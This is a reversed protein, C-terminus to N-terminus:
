YVVTVGRAELAPIQISIANASLPNGTLDLFAGSGFYLNDVLPTLDSIQCYRVELHMLSRHSAFMSLDTLGIQNARVTILLEDNTLVSLDNTAIGSIDLEKLLPCNFLTSLDTIPNNALNMVEYGGQLASIDQVQNGSIDLYRGGTSHLLSIDVLNNNNLVLTDLSLGYWELYKFVDLDSVSGNSLKFTSLNSLWSLPWLDSISYNNSFDLWTVNTFHQLGALNAINRDHADMAVVGAVDSEYLQTEYPVSILDHTFHDFNTDIFYIVTPDIDTTISVGRRQMLPLYQATSWQDLPCGTVDLIRGNGFYDNNYLPLLDSVYTGAMNVEDLNQLSGLASISQVPNNSFTLYALSGMSAVPQISSINNDSMNLYTLQVLSEIPGIDSINNHDLNLGQLQTLASIPNLSSIVNDSLTLSALNTFFNLGTLDEINRSTASFSTLWQVDVDYIPGEMIGLEERVAAELNADNFFIQNKEESTQFYWVPGQTSHGYDDYAVVRWMYPTYAALSYLTYSPSSLYSAILQLDDSSGTNSVYLDYYVKDGDQDPDDCSWTLTVQDYYVDWQTDPPNPNYPTVPYNRHTAGTWFSWVPGMTSHEFGDRTEVQWFYQTNPDLDFYEVQTDHRDWSFPQLNYQDTGVYTYYLLWDGEDPDGGEWELYGADPDIDTEGDYPSPNSPEYPPQNEVTETWFEWTPGEIDMLVTRDGEQGKRSGNAKDEKTVKDTKSRIPVERSVDRKEGKISKSQAPPGLTAQITKSGGGAYRAIIHWRYISGSHMTGPDYHADQIGEAVMLTDYNLGFYVDYEVMTGAPSECDWYLDADVSVNTAEDAPNPNSPRGPGETTFSWLPGESRDESGGEYAIIKWYYTTQPELWGPFYTRENHLSGVNQPYQTTGFYVDFMVEDGEPDDCTWQLNPTISVNQSGDAPDPNSPAPPPQNPQNVQFSWVPGMAEQEKSDHAVIRWYWTGASVNGVNYSRSSIRSAIQGPSPENGFAVDYTLPDGDPDSCQWYLTVEGPELVQGSYPNPSFPQDPPSNQGEEPNLLQDCSVFLAFFLAGFLLPLRTPKM